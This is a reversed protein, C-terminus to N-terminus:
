KKLDKILKYTSRYKNKRVVNIMDDTIVDMSAGNELLALTTKTHGSTVSKILAEDLEKQDYTNRELLYDVVTFHGNRSFYLLHKTGIEGSLTKDYMEVLDDFLAHKKRRSAWILPGFNEVLLVFGKEEIGRILEETISRKNVVRFNTVETYNLEGDFGHVIKSNDTLEVDWLVKSDVHILQSMIDESEYTRASEIISEKSGFEKVMPDNKSMMYLYIMRM